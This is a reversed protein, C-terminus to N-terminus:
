EYEYSTKSPGKVECHFEYPEDLMDVEVIKRITIIVDESKKYLNVKSLNHLLYSPFVDGDSMVREKGFENSEILKKCEDISRFQRADKIRSSWDYGYGNLELYQEESVERGTEKIKGVIVFFEKSM